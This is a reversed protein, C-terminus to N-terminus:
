HMDIVHVPTAAQQSDGNNGFLLCHIFREGICYVDADFSRLYNMHCETASVLATHLVLKDYDAAIQSNLRFCVTM